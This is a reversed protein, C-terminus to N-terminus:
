RKRTSRTTRMAVTKEGGASKRGGSATEKGKGKRGRRGSIMAEEEERVAAEEAAAAEQAEEDRYRQRERARAFIVIVGAREKRVQDRGGRYWDQLTKSERQRNFLPRKAHPPPSTHTTNPFFFIINSMPLHMRRM